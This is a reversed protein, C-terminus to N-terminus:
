IKSSRLGSSRRDVADAAVIIEVLACLLTSARM